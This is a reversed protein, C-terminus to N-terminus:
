FRFFIMLFFIIVYVIALKVFLVPSVQAPGVQSWIIMVTLDWFGFRAAGLHVLMRTWMRLQVYMCVFFLM